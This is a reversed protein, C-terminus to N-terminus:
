LNDLLNAKAKNNYIIMWKTADNIFRKEQDLINRHSKHPKKFIKVLREVLRCSMEPLHIPINEDDSLINGEQKMKAREIALYALMYCRQRRSFMRVREKTLVENSISKFVLKRFSEKTRKDKLPFGRYTNKSQAWCYEISEGAIEPHYKPSCVIRVGLQTARFQLQTIENRFDPLNAVIKKLSTNAIENGNDDKRGNVTYYKVIEDNTKGRTDLFGREFLIQLMGKPKGMWGEKIRPVAHELPLQNATAVDQLNKLSRRHFNNVSLGTRAVLQDILEKKTYKKVQIEDSEHDNKSQERQQVTMWFPGEDGDRFQMHQIDGVSLTSTHPGLYTRDAITSARMKYNTVGGFYKNMENVNLGDPRLRDHGSSHDFYFVFDYREGYLCHLVDVVDEFQLIMTSYDWYGDQNQGYEFKRIFPSETLTPKTTTKIVKQAAEKDLYERGEFSRYQNILQLQQPTLPHGFGFDRSTFASIMIGCGDNKPDAKSSGDPLYWKGNSMLFQKFICEDQGIKIIPKVNPPMRVSLYGGFETETNCRQSFSLHSDVHFEIYTQEEKEYEYGCTRDFNSDSRELDEVEELTLSLWRYCRFEDQMYQILYCKRYAVTEPDEHGDVYYTKRRSHFSLHLRNMWNNMTSLCLTPLGNEHLVDDITMDINGTEQKRKELLEPLLTDKTYSYLLETSLTSLNERAYDILKQRMDPNNDLMPPYKEILTRRMCINPFSENNNKFQRFWVMITEFNPCFFDGNTQNDNKNEEDDSQILEDLVMNENSIKDVAARCSDKLTVPDNRLKKEYFIRLATYLFLSKQQIFWIHYPTCHNNEDKDELVMRWGDVLRVANYLKKIRKRIIDKVPIEDRTTPNVYGYHRRAEPSLFWDTYEIPAPQPPQVHVIPNPLLPTQIQLQPPPQLPPQSQFSQSSPQSSQTSSPLGSQQLTDVAELLIDFPNVTPTTTRTIRKLSPPSRPQHNDDEGERMRKNDANPVVVTPTAETANGSPTPSLVNTQRNTVVDSYRTLCEDGYRSKADNITTGADVIIYRRERIAKSKYHRYTLVDMQGEGLKGRILWGVAGKFTEEDVTEECGSPILWLDHFIKYFVGATFWKYRLAPDSECFRLWDKVVPLSSALSSSQTAVQEM